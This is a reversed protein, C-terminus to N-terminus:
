RIEKRTYRLVVCSTTKVYSTMTPVPVNGGLTISVNKLSAYFRVLDGPIPVPGGLSVVQGPYAVMSCAACPVRGYINAVNGVTVTFVGRSCPTNGLISAINETDAVIICTPAPVNGLMSSFHETYAVMSCIPAPMGAKGLFTAVDSVEVGIRMCCTPIPSSGILSSIVGPYANCTFNAQPCKGEIRKGAVLSGSPVPAEAEIRAYRFVASM